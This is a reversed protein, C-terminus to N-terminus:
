KRRRKKAPKIKEMVKRRKRVKRIKRVKKPRWHIIWLVIGLFLAILLYGIGKIFWSSEM